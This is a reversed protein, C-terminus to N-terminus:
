VIGNTKHIFHTLSHIFPRVATGILFTSVSVVGNVMAMCLAMLERSFSVAYRLKCHSRFRYHVFSIATAGGYLFRAISFADGYKITGIQLLKPLM